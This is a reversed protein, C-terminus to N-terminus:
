ILSGKSSQINTLQAEAATMEKLSVLWFHLHESSVQETLGSYIANAIQHHGYRVASRGIRYNGWLDNNNIVYNLVDTIEKTPEYISLTQFILTCMMVKLQNQEITLEKVNSLETLKRLIDPFLPVLTQPQLGGIAGLAECITM